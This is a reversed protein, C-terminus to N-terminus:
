VLNKVGNNAEKSWNQGFIQFIFKLIQHFVLCKATFFAFIDTYFNKTYFSYFNKTYLIDGFFRIQWLLSFTEVYEPMEPGIQGSSLKEGVDEVELPPTFTQEVWQDEEEEEDDEGPPGRRKDKKKKKKKSKKSKKPKKMKEDGSSIVTANEAMQRLAEERERQRRKKPRDWKQVM